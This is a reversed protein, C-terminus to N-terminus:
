APAAVGERQELLEVGGHVAPRAPVEHAAVVPLVPEAVAVAAGRALVGGPLPDLRVVHPHVLEHDEAALQVRLRVDRDVGAEAPPSALPAAVVFIPRRRASFPWASGYRILNQPMPLSIYPSHCSPWM